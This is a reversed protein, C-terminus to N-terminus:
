IKTVRRLASYLYIHTKFNWIHQISLANDVSKCAHNIYKNANISLIKCTLM